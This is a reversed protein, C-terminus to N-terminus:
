YIGIYGLTNNNEGSSHSGWIGFVYSIDNVVAPGGGSMGFRKIIIIFLIFLYIIYIFLYM